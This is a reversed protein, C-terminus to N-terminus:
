KLVKDTLKRRISLIIITIIWFIGSYFVFSLSVGILSDKSIAEDFLYTVFGSKNLIDTKLYTVASPPTAKIIGNRDVVFYSPYLKVGLRENLLTYPNSSTDKPKLVLHKWNNVPKSLFLFTKTPTTLVGKWSAFRDVSISIISVKKDNGKLLSEFQKMEELCPLCGKFWFDMITLDSNSFNLRVIAGSTDLLNAIEFRQGVHQNISKYNAEKNAKEIKYFIFLALLLFPIFLLLWARVLKTSITM